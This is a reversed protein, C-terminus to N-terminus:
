QFVDDLAEEHDNVGEPTRALVIAAVHAAGHSRLAMAAARLSAGSTMVDDVVVVRRDRVRAAQLPDVALARDLNALREHRPLTSQAPTDRTRLLLNPHTKDPALRHALLLAQNYGRQALRERSLPMPLVFDAQALTDEAWPISLMLTALPGAWSPRDHFKFQRVADRWPWSYDTACLCVDLGTPHLLCQGCVQVGDAVSLACRQCRAVVPAFRAVCTECLPAGPWHRCVACRSPLWSWARDALPFRRSERFWTQWFGRPKM